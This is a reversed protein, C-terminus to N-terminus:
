VCEELNQKLKLELEEYLYPDLERLANILVRSAAAGKNQVADVVERAGDDKPKNRASDMESKIIVKSQFLKDLLVNLVPPTVRQVFEARVSFLWQDAPVRSEAPVRNEAPVRSEAPVNRQSLAHRPGTPESPIKSLNEELLNQNMEKLVNRTVKISNIGYNLFMQDVTQTRDAGELRSKPIGEFGLVEGQLHWKFEEFDEKGLQELTRFLIKKLSAM